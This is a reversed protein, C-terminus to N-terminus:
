LGKEVLWEFVISEFIRLSSVGEKEALGDLVTVNEKTTMDWGIFQMYPVPDDSSEWAQWTPQFWDPFGKPKQKLMRKWYYTEIKSDIMPVLSPLRRHLTKTASALAFGKVSCIALVLEGVRKLTSNDYERYIDVLKETPNITIFTSNFTDLHKDFDRIREARISVNNMAITVVYDCVSLRKDDEAPVKDYYKWSYDKMKRELVEEANNIRTNDILTLHM